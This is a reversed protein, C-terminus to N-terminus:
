GFRSAIWRSTTDILAAQDALQTFTHNADPFYARDVRGRLTPFVEYIQDPHNYAARHSGAYVALVRVGRDALRTLQARLEESPPYERGEAPPPPAGRRRLQELAAAARRRVVRVARRALEQSGVEARLRRLERLQSRRTEYMAPDVLVVGAVRDDVLATALANDAGACVGFIVFRRAGVADGLGTMAARTDAVASDRFTTADSSATSDGIGGLDLRLAAFGQDALRRTLTVHLRHPGTRHLVGANLVIVAPAPATRTKGGAPHSVIGVLQGEPGLRLVEDRVSM